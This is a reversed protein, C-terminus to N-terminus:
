DTPHRSSLARPFNSLVPNLFRQTRRFDRYPQDALIEQRRVEDRFFLQRWKQLSRSFRADSDEPNIQTRAQKFLRVQVEGDATLGDLYVTLGFTKGPTVGGLGIAAVLQL